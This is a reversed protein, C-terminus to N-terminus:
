SYVKKSDSCTLVKVDDRKFQPIHGPLLIANQEGYNVIFKLANM